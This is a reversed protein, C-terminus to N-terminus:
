MRNSQEEMEVITRITRLLADKKDTMMTRIHDTENDTRPCADLMAIAKTKSAVINQLYLKAEQTERVCALMKKKKKLMIDYIADMECRELHDCECIVSNLSEIAAIHLDFGRRLGLVRKCLNEVLTTVPIDSDLCTVVCTPPNGGPARVEVVNKHDEVVRPAVPESPKNKACAEVEDTEKEPSTKDLALNNYNQQYWRELDVKRM